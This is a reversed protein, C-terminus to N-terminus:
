KRSLAYHMQCARWEADATLSRGSISGQVTVWAEHGARVGYQRTVKFTGDASVQVPFSGASFPYTFQGNTVQWTAPGNTPCTPASGRIVTRQGGYRGDLQADALSSALPLLCLVLPLAMKKM